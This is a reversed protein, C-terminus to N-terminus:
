STGLRQLEIGNHILLLFNMMSWIMYIYIWWSFGILPLQNQASIFIEHYEAPIFTRKYEKDTNFITTNIIFSHLLSFLFIYRISIIEVHNWSGWLPSTNKRSVSIKMCSVSLMSRRRPWRCGPFPAFIHNFLGYFYINCRLNSISIILLSVKM